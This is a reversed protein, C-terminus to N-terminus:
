LLHHEAALRHHGPRAPPLEAAHAVGFITNVKLFDRPQVPDCRDDTKRLPLRSPDVVGGFFRIHPAWGHRARSAVALGSREV